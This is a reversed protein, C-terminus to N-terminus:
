TYADTDGDERQIDIDPIGLKDQLSRAYAIWTGKPPPDQRAWQTHPQDQPENRMRQYLTIAQERAISWLPDVGLRAKDKPNPKQNAQQRHPMHSWM